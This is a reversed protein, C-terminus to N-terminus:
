QPHEEDNVVVILAEARQPRVSFVRHPM